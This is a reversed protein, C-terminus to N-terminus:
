GVGKSKVGRQRQPANKAFLIRRVGGNREADAMAFAIVTCDLWHNEKRLRVWEIKGNRSKRKEESMIHQIYDPGADQSFTFRGPEDKPIQLRYHIADKFAGTDLLWLNLGGPIKIGKPMKDINSIKMKKGMSFSAGKTGYIKGRGHERLWIYAAETMTESEEGYRSGGTDMGGIWIPLNQGDQTRYISDWVFHSLNQEGEIFGYDILFPSLDKRWAIVTYWYGGRGPDIGATLALTDKPCILMRLENKNTSLKELTKTEYKEIWPEAAWSNRFNMLKDPYDKSALFESACDGWHLWPSYWAPLHFGIKQPHESQKDPRARWEGDVLIQQKHINDIQQECEICEYWAIKKVKDPDRENEPWKIQMFVLKQFHGCHPCPVYYDYIVECANLENWINGDEFTPTSVDFIKRNWFNKTREKSLSMPSAEKGVFKPYKDIEDRFLYRVPRQSLNAASNAGAICFIMNTFKMELTTFDDFNSTKKSRLEESAEIMPQLRNKSVFRGLKETPMVLLTPSPDQNICYGICNYMMETKGVQTAWCCVIHEINIDSFTDMVKRCYPTRLTRYPGPEPSTEPTLIRFKNAWESVTLKEPPKFTKLTKDLYILESVKINM